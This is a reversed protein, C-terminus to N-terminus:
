NIKQVRYKRGTVDLSQLEEAKIIADMEIIYNFIPDNSNIKAVWAIDKGPIFEMQIQYM